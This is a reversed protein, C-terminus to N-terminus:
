RATLSSRPSRGSSAQDASGSMPRTYALVPVSVGAGGFHAAGDFDFQPARTFGLGEYLRVAATMFAATHLCMTDAGADDALRLCAEMLRRAIGLGRFGLDVGVARVGAWGAPWGLGEDAADAFFTATGVVQRGFRAVLIRGGARADLDALDALYGEFVGPPVVSAYELYACGLVRRVAPHDATSATEIRVLPRPPLETTTVPVAVGAPLGQNQAM